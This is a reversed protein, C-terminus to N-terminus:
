ACLTLGAGMRATKPILFRVAVVTEFVRSGLRFTPPAVLGHFAQSMGTFLAVSYPVGAFNLFIRGM